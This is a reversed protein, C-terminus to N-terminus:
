LYFNEEVITLRGTKKYLEFLDQLYQDRYGIDFYVFNIDPDASEIEELVKALRDEYDKSYGTTSGLKKKEEVYKLTQKIDEVLEDRESIMGTEHDRPYRIAELINEEPRGCHDCAEITAGKKMKILYSSSSSNSVLGTRRKM